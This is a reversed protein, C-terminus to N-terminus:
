AQEISGDDDKDSEPKGKKGNPNPTQGAPTVAGAAENM